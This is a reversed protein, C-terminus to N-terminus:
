GRNAAQIREAITEVFSRANVLATAVEDPDFAILDDYDGRQRWEFLRGYFRGMEVPIEGTKVWQRDFVAKVGTHKSSSQGRTLLLATTAYFCAYYLRNVAAHLHINALMLDAKSLAERARGLRYEVYQRENETV